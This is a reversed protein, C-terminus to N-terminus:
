RSVAVAVPFQSDLNQEPLESVSAIRFSSNRRPASEQAPAILRMATYLPVIRGIFPPSNLQRDVGFHKMLTPIIKARRDGFDSKASQGTLIKVGLDLLPSQGPTVAIVVGDPTLLRRMELCAQDLDPIFELASVIVIADFFGDAYPMSTASGTALKAEVGHEALVNAVEDPYPHPDIGFLEDAHRALEPMFVGSGYGIELLRHWRRVKLLKRILRFRIKQIQGLLPRFNWDAHDVDGTKMLADLPLLQLPQNALVNM